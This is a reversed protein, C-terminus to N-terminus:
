YTVVKITDTEGPIGITSGVIVVMIDGKNLIKLQKIRRITEETFQDQDEKPPVVISNIGWVLSLKNCVDDEHTAAIIQSAPRFSSILQATRGTTTAVVLLKAKARYALLSASSVIASFTINEKAIHEWNIQINKKYEPNSEVSRIISSMTHVAEAPYKGSASEASLMVADVEDLVANAVDSVEARTPRPNDIMSELMQTAVIVPKQYQRCLRVIKQQYIPVDSAKTEIALDGRAVMVADTERIIDELSELAQPKELKVIVRAKSKYKKILGKGTIVDNPSQVFSISLYDVGTRLAFEADKYDKETFSAGPLITDPVNIGKKSSVWGDNKVEVTLVKGKVGTVVTEVLGDNLLIRHGKKVFPSLDFQMPLENKSPNISLQITEGKELRLKYDTGDETEGPINGLRIKPGQLDAMIGIPKNLKRSVRRILEIQNGKEEHSGHSFNLRAIDMGAMALEELTLQDWSSPGITCIIKTKKNYM